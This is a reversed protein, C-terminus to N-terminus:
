ETPSPSLFTRRGMIRYNNRAVVDVAAPFLRHETELVRASLSSLTDDPQVPVPEQLLIPGSDLGSEVFHVTVGTWRVGAELAQKQAHMGPFSPLLSPHINLIPEGFDDIFGAGLVRMYGALCILDITRTKVAALVAQEHAAREVGRSPICLAEIGAEAALAQSGSGAVNSVVLVVRYSPFDKQGAILAGLNSGRGSAFVAVRNV